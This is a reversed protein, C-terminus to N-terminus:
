AEEYDEYPPTTFTQMAIGAFHECDGTEADDAPPKKSENAVDVVLVNKKQRIPYEAAFRRLVVSSALMEIVLKLLLVRLRVLLWLLLIHFRILSELM